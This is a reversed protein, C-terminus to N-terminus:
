AVGTDAALIERATRSRGKILSRLVSPYANEGREVEIETVGIPSIPSGATCLVKLTRIREAWPVSGFFSSVVAVDIDSFPFARGRAASGFVLVADSRIEKHEKVATCFGELAKRQYQTLPWNAERAEGARRSAALDIAPTIKPPM